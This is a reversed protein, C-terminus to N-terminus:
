PVSVIRWLRPPQGIASTDFYLQAPSTLTVTDLIVWTDAPGFQNIYDLRVSNGISGTLSIAPVMHLDLSPSPGIRQSARYFRQTPLPSSLDFYFQPSNTFYVTPFAVWETSLGVASAYEVNLLSAPQATLVIGPVMRRAVAPIVSLVAPASTVAGIANTVVVTYNGALSAEVNTLELVSTTAGNLLNTGNFMWHYGLPADGTARVALHVPSGTEATQSSPPSMITPPERVTLTAGAAFNQLGCGGSCNNGVEVLYNGADTSQVSAIQYNSSTAGPIAVGNFHWQYHETHPCAAISVSFNVTAGRVVTQSIPYSWVPGLCCGLCPNWNVINFGGVQTLSPGFLMPSPFAGGGLILDNGGTSSGIYMEGVLPFGNNYNALAEAWTAGANASWGRVVFDVTSGPAGYNVVVGNRTVLRGTTASTNTNYAGAFYFRPDDFSVNQGAGNVTTSSALFVAFIFQRTTARPMAVGGASILTLASNGFNVTGQAFLSVATGLVALFTTFTRM